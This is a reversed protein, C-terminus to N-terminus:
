KMEIGRDLNNPHPNREKKIFDIAEETSTSLGNKVMNLESSEGYSSGRRSDCVLKTIFPSAMIFEINANYTNGFPTQETYTNSVSEHLISFIEIRQKETKTYRKLLWFFIKKM